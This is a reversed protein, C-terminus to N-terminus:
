PVASSSGIHNTHEELLGQEQHPGAESIKQEYMFDFPLILILWGAAINQVGDM